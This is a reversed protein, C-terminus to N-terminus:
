YPADNNTSPGSVLLPPRGRTQGGRTSARGASAKSAHTSLGTPAHLHAPESVRGISAGHVCQRLCLSGICACFRPVRWCGWSRLSWPIALRRSGFAPPLPPRPELAFQEQASAHLAPLPAPGCSAHSHVQPLKPPRERRECHSGVQVVVRRQRRDPGARSLTRILVQQARCGESRVIGINVYTVYSSASTLM